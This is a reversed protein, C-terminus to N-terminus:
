SRAPYPRAPTTVLPDIGLLEAFLAHYDTVAQRLQETSADRRLSIEHARRYRELTRAHEVSLHALETDYDDVPYGRDAVLRTLLADAERVTGAPDDVFHVQVEHWARAYRLRSQEDLPTLELAAHSRQRGRLEREAATRSPQQSLVRDYEPGFRNRLTQRRWVAFAAAAIVVLVAVVILTVVIQMSTM